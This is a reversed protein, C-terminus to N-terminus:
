PLTLPAVSVNGTFTSTIDAFAANVAALGTVSGNVTAAAGPLITFTLKVIGVNGSLGASATTLAGVNIITAPPNTVFTNPFAPATAPANGTYQLRSSSPNFNFELSGVNGSTVNVRFELTATTGSVTWTGTLSNGTPPATCTVTFDVTVTQGASAITYPKAAPATCGTPLNAVTVTGSGVAVNAVSYQGTAATTATGGPAVTVTAGAIGGGTSRTVTGTVTGTTPTTSCSVTLDVTATQGASAIAYAKAAPATCGSPLNSVAVTGSGVPVGTVSFQGASSTTATGGPTVTVTAGAIPGGGSRTVTGAVSGTPAPGGGVTYSAEQIATAARYNFGGTASTGLLPGLATATTTRAGTSGVVKFRVTAITVVATSNAAGQRGSFRLKGNLAETPNVTGTGTNGFSFAFFQLVRPDWKLSDVVWSDLAEAGPTGPVDASLDYTITYPLVGTVPDPTGFTGKWVLPTAGSGGTVTATAQASATAGGNDTVTLTVQYSGAAQYTHSPSPGTGTGGDGFTWAYSAISGDPDTSGASSFTVPAGATGTYPGNANALPAQNGGSTTVTVQAQDTATLGLNDTVTLTVTYTGAALYAKTPNPGTATTGDGFAWSYSAISGDPDSSGASSFAINGGVSGAYPGNAEAVPAQNGSGSGVTFTDEVVRVLTDIQTFDFLTARVGSTRTASTGAGIVTFIMKGITTQGSIGGTTTFGGWNVTGPSIGNGFVNFRQDVAETREFRLVQPDYRLQAEVAGVAAGATASLDLALRLEVTAGIAAAQPAWLNRYVYPRSPDNPNGSGECRIRYIVTDSSLPAVTVSRTRTGERTCTAPVSALSFQYSGPRLNELLQSGSAAAPFRLTRAVVRESEPLTADAAIGAVDVVLEAGAPADGEVAVGALIQGRSPDRCSVTYRVDTVTQTTADSVVAQRTAGGQVACSPAVGGLTVAYTGVRLPVVRREAAIGIAVRVTDPGAVLVTYGDPDNSGPNPAISVTSIQLGPLSPTRAGAVTSAPSENGIRDLAVVRYGYFTEPEVANDFYVIPGPLSQPLNAVLTEFPGALQTRRELRYGSVSADKVADWQVKVSRLNVPAVTLSQPATFGDPLTLGEGTTCATVFAAALLVARGAVRLRSSIM